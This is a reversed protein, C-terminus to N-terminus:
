TRGLLESYFEILRRASRDWSFERLVWEKAIAGRLRLSEGSEATAAALTTAYEAWPVCWGAGNRNLEAWPTSDTVLAPIGHSLAEAISLGFNEGHSPLLYLSAISYPPPHRTGDYARVRGAGGARLVYDDIMRATYQEEIGVVLLTWGAAANALWADILELLRKKQHFRSYFVAVRGKALSPCVDLWHKAASVGAERAPEAVANPAVCVPQKFGLSRIDAEESASTAHWGDVAELAGPHILARAFAKRKAHHNWAWKDMMGRPSVVLPAKARRAAKHSYHLTRLWISHHHYVDARSNSLYSRMSSSACVAEPWNRHFVRVSVPGETEQWGPGPETALLEVEGGNRGIAAALSRVSKSPGGHRVEISPVIQCSKV